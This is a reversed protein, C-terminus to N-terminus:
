VDIDTVKKGVLYNAVLMLAALFLMFNGVINEYMPRMYEPNLVLLILVIALPFFTLVKAESRKQATAVQIEQQISIKDAIRESTNQTVKTLNGGKSRTILISDVFQEVDELNKMREKFARLSQDVSMGFEIDHNIQSIEELMPKDKQTVHEKRLDDECRKLATQLSAGARLSSAISYMGDRFQNLFIAERKQAARKRQFRPYFLALLSFLLAFFKNQFFLMGLFFILLGVVLISLIDKSKYKEKRDTSALKEEFRKTAVIGRSKWDKEFRKKTPLRRKVLLVILDIFSLILIFFAAFLGVFLSTGSM